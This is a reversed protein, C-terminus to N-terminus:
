FSLMGHLSPLLNLGPSHRGTIEKFRLNQISKRKLLIQQRERFIRKWTRQVLRIWHTKIVVTHTNTTPEIFLQMIHIKKQVSNYFFQSYDTLYDSIIESKYKLFLKPLIVTDMLIRKNIHLKLACIGLYYNGSIKDSQSFDENEEIINYMDDDDQSLDDNSTYFRDDDDDYLQNM